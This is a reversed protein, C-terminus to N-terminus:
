MLSQWTKEVMCVRAAWSMQDPMDLLILFSDLCIHEWKAFSSFDLLIYTGGETSSRMRIRKPEDASAVDNMKTKNLLCLKLTYLMELMRRFHLCYSRPCITMIHVLSWDLEVVVFRPSINFEGLHVPCPRQRHTDAGGEDLRSTCSVASMRVLQCAM